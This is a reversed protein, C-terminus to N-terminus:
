YPVYPTYYKKSQRLLKVILEFALLVFRILGLIGALGSVAQQALSEPMPSIKSNVYM